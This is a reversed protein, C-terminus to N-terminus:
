DLTDSLTDTSYAHRRARLNDTAVGRRATSYVVSLQLLSSALRVDRTKTGKEGEKGRM